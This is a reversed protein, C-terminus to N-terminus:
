RGKGSRRTETKADTRKRPMRDGPLGPRYRLVATAVQEPTAGGYAADRPKTKMDSGGHPQTEAGSLYAGERKPVVERHLRGGRGNRQRKREDAM